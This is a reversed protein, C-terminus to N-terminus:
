RGPGAGIVSPEPWSAWSLLQPHTIVDAAFVTRFDFPVSERTASPFLRAFGEELGRVVREDSLGDRRLRGEVYINWLLRYRERTRDRRAPPGEFRDPRYEFRPDLMDAVHLLERRLFCELRAPELLSAAVVQILLSRRRNEQQGETTSVFLDVSEATRRAAELVVCRHVGAAISPREALLRDILGNLGSRVFLEAYANQFATERERGPPLAYLPDVRRHLRREFEADRAALLGVAREILAPQYEVRM